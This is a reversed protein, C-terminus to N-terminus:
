KTIQFDKERDGEQDLGELVQSSNPIETNQGPAGALCVRPEIEQTPERDVDM